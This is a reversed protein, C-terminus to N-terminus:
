PSPTLAAAPASIPDAPAGLPPHCSQRGGRDWGDGKGQHEQGKHQHVAPVAATRVPHRTWSLAPWKTPCRM